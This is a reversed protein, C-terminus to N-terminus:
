AGHADFFACVRREFEDPLEYHVSHGIGAPVWCESVPLWEALTQAHRGPANVSDNEGQVCLCPVRVDQLDRATWDPNTVTENITAKLLERWYGAGHHADHLAIMEDMWAVNERAVRDPHMSVPVRDRLHGDIYANAALLVAARVHAPQEKAMYLAVNGGNSHGIVYAPSASLGHLLDACDQAMDSFSYTLRTDQWGPARAPAADLSAATDRWCAMSRGHGRCDPVIVRYCTALRAALNSHVCFDRAGTLTSGHILLVAPADPAGFEEYYILNSNSTEFDM